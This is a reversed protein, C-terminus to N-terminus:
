QPFNMERFMAQFRPDGRLPDWPPGVKMYVMNPAREELGKRCWQFARDFDGVAGYATCMVSSDLWEGAPPHEVIRLLRHAEDTDGAVGHAWACMALFQMNYAGALATLVKGCEARVGARQKKVAYNSALFFTGM